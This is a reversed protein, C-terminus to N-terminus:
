HQVVVFFESGNVTEQEYIRYDSSVYRINEIFADMIPVLRPSDDVERVIAVSPVQMIFDCDSICDWGEDVMKCQPLITALLVVDDRISDFDNFTRHGFIDPTYM